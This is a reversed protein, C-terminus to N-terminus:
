LAKIVNDTVEKLLKASNNSPLSQLDSHRIISGICSLDKLYKDSIIKDQIVESNCKPCLEGNM